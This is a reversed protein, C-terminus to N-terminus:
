PYKVKEWSYYMHIMFNNLTTLYSHIFVIKLDDIVRVVILIISFCPSMGIEEEIHYTDFIKITCKLHSLTSSQIARM